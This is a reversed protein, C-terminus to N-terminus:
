HRKSWKAEQADLFWIFEMHRDHLIQQSSRAPKSCIKPSVQNYGMQPLELLKGLVAPQRLVNLRFWILRQGGRTPIAQPFWPMGGITSNSFPVEIRAARTQREHETSQPRPAPPEPKAACPEPRARAGTCKAAGENHGPFDPGPRHERRRFKGPHSHFISDQRFACYLHLV